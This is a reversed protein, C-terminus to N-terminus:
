CLRENRLYILFSAVSRWREEEIGIGVGADHCRCRLISALGETTKRAAARCVFAKWSGQKCAQWQEELLIDLCEIFFKHEPGLLVFDFVPEIPDNM